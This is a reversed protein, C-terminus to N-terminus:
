DEIEVIDEGADLLAIVRDFRHLVVEQLHRNTCNGCTLWVIKPPASLRLSIL